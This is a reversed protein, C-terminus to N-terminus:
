PSRKLRSVAGLAPSACHRLVADPDADDAAGAVGADLQQAQEGLV